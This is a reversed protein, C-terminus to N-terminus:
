IDNAILDDATIHHEDNFSGFWADFSDMKAKCSTVVDCYKEAGGNLEECEVVGDRNKDNQRMLRLATAHTLNEQVRGTSAIYESFEELEICGSNNTDMQDFLDAYPKVDIVHVLFVLDTEKPLSEFQAYQYPIVVTRREDICAGELGRALPALMARANTQLTLPAYDATEDFLEGVRNDKTVLHAAYHFTVIYNPKIETGCNIPIYDRIFRVQPVPATTNTTTAQASTTTTCYLIIVVLTVMLTLSIPHRSM